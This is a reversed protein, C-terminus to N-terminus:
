KPVQKMEKLKNFKELEISLKLDLQTSKNIMSEEDGGITFNSQEESAFTSPQHHHGRLISVTKKVSQVQIPSFSRNIQLNLLSTM